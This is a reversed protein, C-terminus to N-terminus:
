TADGPDKAAKRSLTKDWHHLVNVWNTEPVGTLRTYEECVPRYHDAVWEPPLNPRGRGARSATRQARNMLLRLRAFEEDDFFGKVAQCQECYRLQV